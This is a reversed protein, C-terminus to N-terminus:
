NFSSLLKQGGADILTLLKEDDQSLFLLMKEVMQKTNSQIMKFFAEREETWDMLMTQSDKNRAGGRSGDLRIEYYVVGNETIELLNEYSLQFGFAFKLGGQRFGFGDIKHLLKTPIMENRGAWSGDGTRNMKFDNPLQIKYAIVKKESTILQHYKRVANQVAEILAAETNFDTTRLSTMRIIETPIGKISFMDKKGYYIDYREHKGLITIEINSVKPM